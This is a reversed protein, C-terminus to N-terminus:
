SGNGMQHLWVTHQPFPIVIDNQRFKYDISKRIEHAVRWQNRLDDVWVFLKFTLASDAFETFRVLPEQGLDKLVNPHEIAAEMILKEVLELDSGYAVGVEVNIRFKSDPQLLNIIKKSAMDNNPIIFADNKFTNYLTTSRMGIRRVECVDDDLLILDGVKFPKDALIALGAFFNSLTDQAAFAIVLGFIGAGAIFVTLDYGFLDFIMAMAIVPILVMGVKELLPVLTDDVTMQTKASYRHAYAILINDYVKYALWSLILIVIISYSTEVLAILDQSINLIELSSVVGFTIILLFIPTRLIRLVIDDLDTETKGAFHHVIPDVVFNIFLAIVIWGILTILFAGYNTDFPSPLFNDWIGFIRNEGAKTGFLSIVSVHVSEIQSETEPPLDMKTANFIVEIDVERSATNRDASIKLAFTESEGPELTVFHPIVEASWDKGSSPIIFPQVIQDSTGNNYVVWEFTVSEGGDVAKDYDDVDFVTVEEASAISPLALLATMTFLAVLLLARRM